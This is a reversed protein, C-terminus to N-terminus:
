NQQKQHDIHYLTLGSIPSELVRGMRIGKDRAVENLINGFYFGISGVCHFPVEKHRPYKCIHKDFFLAFADYIMKAVYPHNIYHQLFMGFSACFKNPMPKKYIHDLIEEKGLKYKHYFAEHLEAPLEKYMYATILKKGLYGGSGEDGLFFGLNPTNEAINKGDYYCSNSGTGLIAAIGAERGCLARAAALLDHDVEITAQPFNLEIANKVISCKDETSCGAGYYFVKLNEHHKNELQPLLEKGLTAAIEQTSQFYPNFGSTKYQHIKEDADILRWDTKTSGSDAILIM